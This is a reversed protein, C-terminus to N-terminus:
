PTKFNIRVMSIPNSWITQVTKYPVFRSMRLMGSPRTDHIIRTVLKSCRLLAVIAGFPHLVPIHPIVGKPVGYLPPNRM